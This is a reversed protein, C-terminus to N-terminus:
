SRQKRKGAKLAGAGVGGVLLVALAGPLPAGSPAAPTAATASASIAMWDDWDSSGGQVGQGGNGGPGGQGGGPGDNCRLVTPYATQNFNVLMEGEAANYTYYTSGGNQYMGSETFKFAWEDSGRDDFSFGVKTGASLSGLDISETGKAITTPQITAGTASDKYTTTTQPHHWSGSQTTTKQVNGEYTYYKFHGEGWQGGRNDQANAEGYKGIDLKFSDVNQNILIYSFGSADNVFSFVDDDAFAGLTAVVAACAHIKKM